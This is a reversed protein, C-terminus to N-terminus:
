RLSWDSVPTSKNIFYMREIGKGEFAYSSHNTAFWEQDDNEFDIAQIAFGVVDGVSPPFVENRFEGLLQEWPISLEVSWNNTSYDVYGYYNCEDMINDQIWTAYVNRPVAGFEGDDPAVTPLFMFNTDTEGPTEAFIFQLCDAANPAPGFFLYSDDQVSMAAYFTEEDWMFYYTANYDDLPTSVTNWGQASVGGHILGPFYPDEVGSITESNVVMPQAGEYEEPTVIGDILIVQGLSLHVANVPWGTETEQAAGDEVALMVQCFALLVICVMSQAFRRM